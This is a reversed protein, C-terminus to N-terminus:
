DGLTVSDFDSWIEYNGARRRLEETTMQHHHESVNLLVVRDAGVSEIESRLREPGAHDDDDEFVKGFFYLGDVFLVDAGEHRTTEGFSWLDPAYTVTASGDSVVYGQEPFAAAHELPIATVTLPGCQVTEGREIRRTPCDVWPFREHVYSLLSDSSAIVVDEDAFARLKQLDLVGTLHDDHGHTLFFADVQETGTRVLQEHLDPGADFVVTVDGSEVLLGPRRRADADTCFQCNCLPVPMGLADGTGLVTARM